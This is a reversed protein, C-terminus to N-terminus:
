SKAKKPVAFKNAAYVTRVLEFKWNLLQWNFLKYLKDKRMFYIKYKNSTQYLKKSEANLM